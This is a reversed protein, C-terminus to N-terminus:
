INDQPNTESWSLLAHMYLNTECCYVIKLHRYLLPSPINPDKINRLDLLLPEYNM